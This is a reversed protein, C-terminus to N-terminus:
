FITFWLYEIARFRERFILQTLPSTEREGLDFPQINVLCSLKGICEFKADIYMSFAPIEATKALNM